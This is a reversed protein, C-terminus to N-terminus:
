KRGGRKAPVNSPASLPANDDEITEDRMQTTVAGPYTIGNAALIKREAVVQAIHAEFDKGREALVEELTVLSNELMVIDANAAKLPDPSFRGLGLFKCQLYAERAQWFPPAGAPLEVAGTEIAEELWCDFVTKYFPVILAERRKMTTRFPMESEMRSASFSTQSYDGSVDSYSVGAARAAKRTLSRDFSEFTASPNEVKNFKLKDGPALHNCTGPQPSIKARSYWDGRMQVFGNMGSMDNNVELSGFAAQPPLDSEITLAFQTQLMANALTFEALSEREHSPTLAAVLPSLGRVQRPDKLMFKHFVKPRGWSTHSPVFQALPQQIFNGLPLNRLYYGVRRGRNDFAVGQVTHLGDRQGSITADLQRADLLCVKTRTRADKCKLANMVAVIEGSLLASYYAAGALEHLNFRGAQDVELPNNAWASWATEIDHSLKRADEDSIGLTKACPKSSLTLGTGVGNTELNEVIAALVPNSTVLDHAIASATVRERDHRSTGPGISYMSGNIANWGWGYNGEYRAWALRPRGPGDTGDTFSAQAPLNFSGSVAPLKPIDPLNDSLTEM